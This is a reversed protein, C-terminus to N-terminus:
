FDAPPRSREYLTKPRRAPKSPFEAPQSSSPPAKPVPEIPPAPSAEHNASLKESDALVPEPPKTVGPAMPASQEPAEPPQVPVHDSHYNQISTRECEKAYPHETFDFKKARLVKQGRIIILLDDNPLRLVEDPTLVRRRGIGETYRYQPIVQALAISQRTTMTSNVEVTMDGSRASFYEATVDDTAGLMIQTDANGLLEAWLNNPYRNQLQPLSQSCMLIQLSRSRITSLRRGFDKITGINNMEDLIINVPVKCRQEPTSDAYRVLKIFLFAFFLASLFELSSNQDDLIIYYACKNWGPESLDIDSSRTIRRVAESQLVQLRTGLGLVIGARVTDSAQSFLSYPGKAPHDIPLRDFLMTLEKETHQTLMQYVAPLNGEEPTRTTDLDVYLILSKLLNSEGNDWFHDGKEDGKTNSIIVDTLIQAMLTDGGLDFMCNWSDSYEPQLLNYVRVKYGHKKFLGATDAFMESKPDAVVVSEGRRISQFLAPRIVGRSKRTGSAGFVAIHKNLRTDEPLCIVSGGETKGLIIGKAREPSAIELVERMEKESMWGSTGYTGRKSRTFNRPDYDNSGFRNYLRIVLYLGGSLAAVFFTCKLGSLTMASRWCVLPSFYITGMTAKGTMGGDALWKQYGITLQNVLGGLYFLAAMGLIVAIIIGATRVSKSKMGDVGKM